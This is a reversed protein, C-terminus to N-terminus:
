FEGHILKIQYEASQRYTRDEMANQYARVAEDKQGINELAWGLEFWAAAFRANISTAAQANTAAESFKGLRNLKEALATLYKHNRRDLNVAKQLAEVASAFDKKEGYTKGLNFWADHNTADLETARQYASVSQDFNQQYYFALGLASFAKSQDGPEAGQISVATRLVQIAEDLRKMRTLLVGQAYFARVYSQDIQTARNFAEVAENLSQKKQLALGLSYQTRAEMPNLKASEQFNRIAEDIRNARLADNGRNYMTIARAKSEKDANYEAVLKDVEAKLADFESKYTDYEDQSASQMLKTLENLRTMKAEIEPTMQAHIQDAPLMLLIVALLTLAIRKMKGGETQWKEPRSIYVESAVLLLAIM